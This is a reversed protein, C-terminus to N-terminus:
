GAPGRCERGPAVQGRGHSSRPRRRHDDRERFGGQRGGRGPGTEIGKRRAAAEAELNQAQAAMLRANNVASLGDQLKALREVTAFDGAAHADAIKSAVEAMQAEIPQRGAPGGGPAPAATRTAMLARTLERGLPGPVPQRGGTMSYRPQVPLENGRGELVSPAMVPPALPPSAAIEPNM